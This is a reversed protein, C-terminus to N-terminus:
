LFVPMQTRAEFGYFGVSAISQDAMEVPRIAVQQVHLRAFACSIPVEQVKQTRASFTGAGERFAASTGM